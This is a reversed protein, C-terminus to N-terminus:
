YLIRRNDRDLLRGISGFFALAGGIFLILMGLPIIVIGGVLGFVSADGIAFLVISYIGFAIILSGLIMLLVGIMLASPVRKADMPDNGYRTM